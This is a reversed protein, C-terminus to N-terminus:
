IEAAHEIRAQGFHQRNGALGVTILVGATLERGHRDASRQPSQHVLGQFVAVIDAGLPHQRGLPIVHGPLQLTGDERQHLRDSQADLIPVVQNQDILDALTKVVLGLAVIRVAVDVLINFGVCRVIVAVVLVNVIM